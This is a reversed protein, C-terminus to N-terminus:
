LMFPINPQVLGTLAIGACPYHLLELTVLDCLMFISNKSIRNWVFQPLPMRPMLNTNWKQTFSKNWVNRAGIFIPSYALSIRSVRWPIGWHIDWVLPIIRQSARWNWAVTTHESIQCHADASPSWRRINSHLNEEFWQLRWLRFAINWLQLFM